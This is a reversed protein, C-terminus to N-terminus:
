PRGSPRLDVIALHAPKFDANELVPSQPKEAPKLLPRIRKVLNLWYHVDAVGKEFIAPHFEFDSITAAPFGSGCFVQSVQIERVAHALVVVDDEARSTSRAERYSNTLSENRIDPV